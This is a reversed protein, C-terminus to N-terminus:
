KLLEETLQLIEPATKRREKILVHLFVPYALVLFLIGILRVLIGLVMAFDGM